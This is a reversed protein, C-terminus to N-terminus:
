WVFPIIKKTKLMYNTYKDGFHGVLEKEEIGIRVYYAVTMAICAFAFGILSNLLMGGGAITIFAGFYSPHRVVSYPGKDILKHESKIQVTATFYKGLTQVAWARFVIGGIIMIAGVITMWTITSHDTKFYAWDIVPVAVSAFSMTLILLVSHKDSQRKDNTESFGIAPQTLWMAVSGLILFIIKGNLIFGPKVSLPIFVM